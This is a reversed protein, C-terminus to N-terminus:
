VEIGNQALFALFRAEDWIEIGLERAKGLKSGAAEGAIVLATKSSVSSAPKGGLAEIAQAAAKRDMGSLTGTLVISKSLWPGEKVATEAQPSVGLSLLADIEDAIRADGFFDVVCQAVTGGIDRISMLAELTASRVAELTGFHRALDRATKEGVNPIGIAYLFTSLPCRKSKELEDLLKQIKKEGFGAIGDFSSASLRYVDSIRTLGLADVLTGATKDGFIEIDMANRSAYHALRAVIQERCSLSNPCFIHAGRTQTRAGCSPCTDPTQIPEGREGDDVVGLIEPIVDGSRRVWVRAGATVGKRAIDGANNLTARKVTVGGIDVPELLATPTLKGTRGVEWRVGTLRTTMEQAAFKVALAWRPFKETNGLALRTAFDCIKIVMGDILFDLADRNAEAQAVLPWIAHIDPTYDCKDSVPLGNEQMFLRMQRHDEIAHGEIFGINYCVASLKRRATERPDLNRLAGAAANRANKLPEAAALNYEALQSLRMYGEAQVEMRGKFPIIAPIDAITLVQSFIGEGTVGNGRTAAQTLKGHEYTLNITLGDFKYELAYVPEPFAQGTELAAQQMRKQARAAWDLIERETRAKDLSWLPAIHTHPQFAKVPAGGVTRTPSDPLVLGSEREMDVLREYLIDYEADSITPADLEYYSRAHERLTQVLNRMEELM